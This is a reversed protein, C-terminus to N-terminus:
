SAAERWIVRHVGVVSIDIQREACTDFCACVIGTGPRRLNLLLVDFSKWYAVSVDQATCGCGNEKHSGSIAVSKEGSQERTETHFVNYFKHYSVACNPPLRKVGGGHVAKPILPLDM